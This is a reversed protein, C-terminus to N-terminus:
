KRGKWWRFALYAVGAMAGLQLARKENDSMEGFFGLSERQGYAMKMEDPFTSLLSRRASEMTMAVPYGSELAPGIPGGAYEKFRSSKGGGHPSGFGGLGALDSAHYKVEIDASVDLTDGLEEEFDQVYLDDPVGAVARSVISPETPFPVGQWGYAYKRPLGSYQRYADSSRRKGYPSAM